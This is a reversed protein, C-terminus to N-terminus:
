AGNHCAVPEIAALCVLSVSTLARELYGPTSGAPRQVTMLSQGAVTM